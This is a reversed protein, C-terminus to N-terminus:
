SRIHTEMTSLHWCARGKRLAKEKLLTNRWMNYIASNLADPTPIVRDGIIVPPSWRISVMFCCTTTFEGAKQDWNPLASIAYAYDM